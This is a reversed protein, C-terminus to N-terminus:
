VLQIMDASVHCKEHCRNYNVGNGPACLPIDCRITCRYGTQVLKSPNLIYTMASMGLFTAQTLNPTVINNNCNGGFFSGSNFQANGINDNRDDGFFSGSNLQANDINNNCNGGFFSASNFQANGINDNRDYGFFSGSKLQTNGINNNRDNGFLLGLQIIRRRHRRQM